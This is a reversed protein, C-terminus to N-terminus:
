LGKREIRKKKKKPQAHEKKKGDESLRHIDALVVFTPDKKYIHDRRRRKRHSFIKKRTFCFFFKLHFWYRM